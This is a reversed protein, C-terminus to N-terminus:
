GGDIRRLALRMLVFVNRDFGRAAAELFQLYHETPGEGVLERAEQQRRRLNALWARCTRAYDLRDNRVLVVEFLGEVAAVVESFRPLDSEPFIASIAGHKFRGTGYAITQLSMSGQPCLWAHCREFFRRYTSHRQQSDAEPTVFHELAGICVISDYKEQPDHDEWHEPRAEVQPFEWNNIEAVQAKSLTLGVGREVGYVTCLRELLAGWGCGVDLVRRADKAAAHEAHFDLKRLQARELDDGAEWMACSYVMRSDLWLRYFEDGIDYHARIAEASAGTRDSSKGAM